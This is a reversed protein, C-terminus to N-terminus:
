KAKDFEALYEILLDIDKLSDGRKVMAERTRQCSELYDLRNQKFLDAHDASAHYKRALQEIADLDKEYDLDSLEDNCFSNLSQLFQRAEERDM